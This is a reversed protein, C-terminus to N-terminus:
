ATSVVGRAVGKVVQRRVKAHADAPRDITGNETEM